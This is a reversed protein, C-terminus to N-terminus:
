NVCASCAEAIKPPAFQARTQGSADNVSVAAVVIASMSNVIGVEFIVTSVKLGLENMRNTRLGLQECVDSKDRAWM